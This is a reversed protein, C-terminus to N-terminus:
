LARSTPRAGPPITARNKDKRGEKRGLWRRITRQAAAIACVGGGGFVSPPPAPPSPAHLSLECFTPSPVSSEITPVDPFGVSETMSPIVFNLRGSSGITLM